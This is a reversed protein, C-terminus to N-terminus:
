QSTHQGLLTVVDGEDHGSPEAYGAAKRAARVQGRLISCVDVFLILEQSEVGLQSMGLLM